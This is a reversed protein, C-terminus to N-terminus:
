VHEGRITIYGFDMLRQKIGEIDNKSQEKTKYFNCPEQKCYLRNLAICKGTQSQNIKRYAFCGDQLENM